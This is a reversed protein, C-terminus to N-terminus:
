HANKAAPLLSSSGTGRPRKKSSTELTGYCADVRLYSQGDSSPVDGDYRFCLHGIFGITRTARTAVTPATVSDAQPAEVFSPAPAVADAVVDVDVDVVDDASETAGGVVFAAGLM